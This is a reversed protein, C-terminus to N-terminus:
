ENNQHVQAIVIRFSVMINHVTQVSLPFERHLDSTLWNNKTGVGMGKIFEELSFRFQSIYIEKTLTGNFPEQQAVPPPVPPWLPLAPGLPLASIKYLDQSMIGKFTGSTTVLSPNLTPYNSNEPKKGYLKLLKRM